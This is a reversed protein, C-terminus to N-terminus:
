KEHVIKGTIHEPTLAILQVRSLDRAMEADAEEATPYYKLALRRVKEATVAADAVLEAHGYVIVSTVYWAWDDEPRYGQNWVTFCVKDNVKLSDARHGIKSGHFYIKGDTEDYYFDMPMAYPYGDDGNVSLVGRKEETLIERCTEESAAQKIRRMARFM